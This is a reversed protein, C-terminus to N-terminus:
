DGPAHHDLSAQRTAAREVSLPRNFDIDVVVDGFETEVVLESQGCPNPGGRGAAGDEGTRFIHRFALTVPQIELTALHLDVQHLTPEIVSKAHLGLLTDREVLPM